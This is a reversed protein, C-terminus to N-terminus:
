VSTREKRPERGPFNPRTKATAPAPAAIAAAVPKKESMIKISVMYKLIFDQLELGKRFEELQSPPMEFDFVFGQAEKHKQIAYGLYKKGLDNKQKIKGSYKSILDEVGKIQKERTDSATDPPLLILTEYLKM